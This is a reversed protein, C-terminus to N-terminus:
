EDIIWIGTIPCDSQHQDKRYCVTNKPSTVNSCASTGEPCLGTYDEPRIVNEFSFGGRKGCIVKNYFGNM